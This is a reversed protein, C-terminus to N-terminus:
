KVNVVKHHFKIYKHLDYHQAYQQFYELLKRNHMYNAVEPKPPFDSYASMEKSSNIVTSKMVSAEESDQPKYNWLGGVEGSMEFVVPEFGYLVAHRASPLGSPGAGVIAVRKM